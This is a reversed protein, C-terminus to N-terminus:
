FIKQENRSDLISAFQLSFEELINNQEKIIKKRNKMKRVMPKRIQREREIAETKEVDIKSLLNIYSHSSPYSFKAFRRYLSEEFLILRLFSM